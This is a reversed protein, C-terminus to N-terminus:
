DAGPRGATRNRNTKAGKKGALVRVILRMKFNGDGFTRYADSLIRCVVSPNSFFTYILSSAGKQGGFASIESFIFVVEKEM